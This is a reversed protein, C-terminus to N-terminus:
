PVVYSIYHRLLGFAILAIYPNRKVAYLSFLQERYSTYLLCINSQALVFDILILVLEPRIEHLEGSFTHSSFVASLRCLQKPNNPIDFPDGVM